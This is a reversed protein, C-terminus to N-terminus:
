RFEAESDNRGRIMLFSASFPIWHVEVVKGVYKMVPLVKVHFSIVYLSPLWNAYLDFRLVAMTVYSKM